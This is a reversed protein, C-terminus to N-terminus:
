SVVLRMADRDEDRIRVRGYRIFGDDDLCDRLLIFQIM